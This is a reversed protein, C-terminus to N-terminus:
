KGRLLKLYNYIFLCLVVAVAIIFVVQAVPHLKELDEM